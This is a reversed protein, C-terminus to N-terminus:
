AAERQKAGPFSVPRVRVFRPQIHKKLVETACCACCQKAKMKPTGPESKQRPHIKRYPCGDLLGTREGLGEGSPWGLLISAGLQLSRSLTRLLPVGNRRQKTTITPFFKKRPPPTPALSDSSDLNATTNLCGNSKKTGSM